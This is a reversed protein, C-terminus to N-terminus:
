PWDRSTSLLPDTEPSPPRSPSPAAISPLMCESITLPHRLQSLVDSFVVGNKPGMRFGTLRTCTAGRWRAGTLPDCFLVGCALSAIHCRMEDVIFDGSSDSGRARTGTKGLGGRLYSISGDSGTPFPWCYAYVHRPLNSPLLSIIMAGTTIEISSSPPLSRALAATPTALRRLHKVRFTATWRIAFSSSMVRICCHPFKFGDMGSRRGNVSAGEWASYCEQCRLETWYREASDDLTPPRDVPGAIALGALSPRPYGLGTSCRMPIGHITHHTDLVNQDLLEM